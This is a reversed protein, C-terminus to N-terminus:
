IGHGGRVGQRPATRAPGPESRDAGGKGFWVSDSLLGCHACDDGFRVSASGRSAVACGSGAGHRLGCCSCRAEGFACQPWLRSRCRGVFSAQGRWRLRWGRGVAAVIRGRNAARVRPRGRVRLHRVRRRQACAGLELLALVGRPVAVSAAVVAPGPPYPYAVLAADHPRHRPLAAARVVRAGLAEESPKLYFEEVAPVPAPTASSSNASM